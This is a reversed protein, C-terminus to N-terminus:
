LDIILVEDSNKEAFRADVYHPVIGLTYRTDSKPFITSVPLRPDGPMVHGLTPVRQKTLRGRLVTISADFLSRRCNEAIFGSGMVIGSYDNRVHSLISGTAVVEAEGPEEWTVQYGYYGFLDLNLQDGFNPYDYYYLRLM